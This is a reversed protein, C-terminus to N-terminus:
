RGYLFYQIMRLTVALLALLGIALVVLFPVDPRESASEKQEYDLWM